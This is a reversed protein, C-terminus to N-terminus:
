EMVPPPATTQTVAHGSAYAMWIGKIHDMVASSGEAEIGHKERYQREAEAITADKDLGQVYIVDHYAADSALQKVKAAHFAEDSVFRHRHLVRHVPLGLDEAARQCMAAVQVLERTINESSERNRYGDFFEVLEEYIVGFAEAPSNIPMPHKMRAAALEHRVKEAFESEELPYGM